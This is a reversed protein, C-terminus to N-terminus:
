NESVIFKYELDWCYEGGRPIIFHIYPEICAVRSNSWFVCFEIPANSKSEVHINAADNRLIFSFNDISSLNGIYATKGDEIMYDHFIIKNKEISVSELKERWFGTPNYPFEFITDPGIPLNDLNFFNHNYVYSDIQNNSTNIIKHQISMTEDDILLIKKLYIYNNKLEQIFQVSSAEIQINRNGEDIIRYTKFRDYEENDGELLGVGIKVFPKSLDNKSSLFEEAPGCVNDHNYPNDNNFWKDAFIHNNKFIRRFIGSWDFRTGRYFGDSASPLYLDVLLDGKSITFFKAM